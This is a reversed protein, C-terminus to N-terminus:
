SSISWQGWVPGNSGKKISGVTKEHFTATSVIMGCRVTRTDLQTPKVINDRANRLARKYLKNIQQDCPQLINTTSSPLQVVSCKLTKRQELWQWEERSSQGHLTVCYADEALVLNRVFRNVHEIVFKIIRKEISDNESTMVVM